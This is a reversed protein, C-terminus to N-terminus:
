APKGYTLFVPVSTRKTIEFAVADVSAADKGRTLGVLLMDPKMRDVLAVVEAIPDGEMYETKVSGLPSFLERLRQLEQSAVEAMARHLDDLIERKTFAREWIPSRRPPWGIVAVCIEHGQGNARLMDAAIRLGALGDDSGDFVVALKM